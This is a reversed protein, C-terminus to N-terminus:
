SEITLLPVRVSFTTETKEIAVKKSTMMEFRAQINSLGLGNSDRKPISIPNLNNKVVLTDEALILEIHLPHDNSVENHKLANEVLMQLAVPPMMWDSSITNMSVFDVTLNKGFRIQNLYVYSKVFEIEELLSVVEDNQHDLVYRYVESLKLIFEAAKDQDSYVLSSLANLSNFLFHPNVQSKLSEFKSKLNESKLREVDIASQRWEMLFAKGHGTLMFFTTIMLPLKLQSWLGNYEMVAFFDAQFYFRIWLFLVLLSVTVSYFLMILVGIILRKLPHALWTWRKNLYCILLSNGNALLSWFSFGIGVSRFFQSYDSAQINNWDIVTWVILSGVLPIVIWERGARLWSGKYEEIFLQRIV